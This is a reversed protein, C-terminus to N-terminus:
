RFPLTSATAPAEGLAVYTVVPELEARPLVRWCDIVVPPLGQREFVVPDLAAFEPWPMTVVIVDADRIADEVSRAFRVNSGELVNRANPVAVPDFAVVDVDHEWLVQALHLGPAEEVVDTGPKYSLGLVAATGNRPLYEHVLVALKQIGDRNM